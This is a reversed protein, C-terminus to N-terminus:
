KSVKVPLEFRKSQGFKMIHIECHSKKGACKQWADTLHGVLDVFCDLGSKFTGWHMPIFHRANLDQFAQLAQDIGVHAENMLYRPENPGVPMLAIDIPGFAKGIELFHDAYASDGAFYIKMDDCKILWSGWLTTNVDFLGRSTWHSAPLFTFSLSNNISVEQGWEMEQVAAFGRKAFWRKNGLPVLIQPNDKKLLLLSPLDMHDRHNHSIIIVDIKPLQDISLAPKVKRKFFCSIDFFVPDTLINVEGVQILFTAHGIWTIMPEVSSHTITPAVMWEAMFNNHQPQQAQALFRHRVQAFRTKLFNGFRPLIRDSHNNYFRGWRIFPKRNM